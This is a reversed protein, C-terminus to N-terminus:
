PSAENELKDALLRIRRVTGKEHPQDKQLANAALRLTGPMWRWDFETLRDDEVARLHPREATSM